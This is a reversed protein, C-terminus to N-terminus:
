KWEGSEIFHEARQEAKRIIQKEYGLVGLLRIANRSEAKGKCLMYPFIVDGGEITEEFHYNEYQTELLQTLEIDHTAAFCFVGKKVLDSLIESAAAIREVTNTGRLVEDVFCMIRMKGPEETADIIRKLSKIEVIFYSDKSALDDRLAM